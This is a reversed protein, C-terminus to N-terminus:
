RRRRGAPAAVWVTMVCKMLTGNGCTALKNGASTHSSVYIDKKADLWMWDGHIADISTSNPPYSLLKVNWVASKDQLRTVYVTWLCGFIKGQVGVLADLVMLFERFITGSTYYEVNKVCRPKLPKGFM